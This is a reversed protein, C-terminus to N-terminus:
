NTKLKQAMEEDTMGFPNVKKKEESDNDEIEENIVVDGSEEVDLVKETHKKMKGYDLLTLVDRNREAETESNFVVVTIDDNDENKIGMVLCYGAENLYGTKSVTVNQFWDWRVIDNRNQMWKGRVPIYYKKQKTIESILSNQMINKMLKTYDYVTSYNEISLGTPDAFITSNAECEKALNNMRNIFETRELGSVRVLTEVTNNTSELLSAYLLDIISIKTNDSIKLKVAEYDYDVHKFTIEEDKISYSVIKELDPKTDLFVKAFVLKTLSALRRRDNMNKSWLIENKTENYIIGSSANIEPQIKAGDKFVKLIKNDKEIIKLPELEVNVVGASIPAIKSFAIKDLDIPRNPFISRDPGYDNITVDVYKGNDVNHVRVVSGKPFDPSAAFNGNKYAYWSAQGVTLVEPYSFVAIRAYPLHILSRVFKEDPFDRTPLPRWLGKGKDFFYVKKYNNTQEDYSLQIYFPKHNDYATKNKFEFQYISSIRNLRWPIEMEEDLQMVSINTSSDLIGPVLSLKIKDDFSAVTYGKLITEHDLHINFTETKASVKNTILFIILVAFFLSFKKM